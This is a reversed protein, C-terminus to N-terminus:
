GKGGRTNEVQSEVIWWHTDKQNGQGYLTNGAYGGVFYLHTAGCFKRPPGNSVGDVGQEVAALAVM